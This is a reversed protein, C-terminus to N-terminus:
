PSPTAARLTLDTPTQRKSLRLRRWEPRMAALADPDMPLSGSIRVQAETNNVVTSDILATARSDFLNLGTSNGAIWAREIVLPGETAEVSLGSRLNNLGVYDEIRVHHIVDDLWGGSAHNGHTTTDELLGDHFGGTLGMFGNHDMQVRRLVVNTCPIGHFPNILLGVGSNWETCVDEILLNSSALFQVAGAFAPTSAHRFVLGRLVVHDRQFVRLLKSHAGQPAAPRVSAEILGTPQQGPALALVLRANDEDIWYSGPALDAETFVQHLPRRDIFLLERRLGPASLPM